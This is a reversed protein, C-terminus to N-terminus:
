RFKRYTERFAMLSLKIPNKWLIYPFSIQDRYSYKEVENYWLKMFNIVEKTNKRIMIGPAYLNYNKPFGEEKYKVIQKQIIDKNDNGLKICFEAEDYICDRRNHKMLVINYKLNEKVFDDLDIKIRFKADIYILIDHDLFEHFNIKIRRSLKRSNKINKIVKVNWIDSKIERDSFCIHEWDKNEFIPEHLKYDGFMVTYIVKKM